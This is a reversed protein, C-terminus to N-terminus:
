ETPIVFEWTAHVFCESKLLHKIQLKRESGGDFYLQYLQDGNTNHVYCYGPKPFQKSEIKMKLEGSKAALLVKKPIEVLEYHWSPTRTLARLVFIREYSALHDLFLKRLGILDDPNEGWVGKGLEMFKSIWLKDKRIGKDAQTKLSVTSGDITIDHGRNGKPALRVNVGSMDLVTELVYEFKDKSFPESSFCHHIRLADGFSRITTDNLLDTQIADYAYESDFARVVRDIWYLQGETLSPIREILRKVQARMQETM